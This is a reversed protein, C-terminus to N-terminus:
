DEIAVVGDAMEELMRRIHHLAGSPMPQKALGKFILYVRKHEALRPLLRLCCARIASNPKAHYHFQHCLEVTVLASLYTVCEADRSTYIDTM